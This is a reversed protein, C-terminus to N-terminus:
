ASAGKDPSSNKDADIATIAAPAGGGDGGGGGAKGPMEKRCMKGRWATQLRLSATSEAVSSPEFGMKKKQMNAKKEFKSHKAKNELEKMRPNVKLNSM